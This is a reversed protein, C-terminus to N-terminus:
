PTGANGRVIRVAEVTGARCVVVYRGAALGARIRPLAREFPASQWDTAFLLYGAHLRQGATGRSNPYALAEHAYWEDHTQLPARTPICRLAAIADATHQYPQVRLYHLPHMPNFAILFLVCLAVAATWWRTAALASGNYVMRALAWAAAVILWPIWLLAYHMGMRWVSQDSSLFVMAFAPLALLSWRTFLPLLALPVLAEMLYTLRGATAVSRILQLPHIFLALATQAPGHAFPYDYFHSPGWPGVRPLIVAVYVALWAIAFLALAAAAMALRLP